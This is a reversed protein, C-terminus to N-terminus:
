VITTITKLNLESRHILGAAFVRWPRPGLMTLNRLVRTAASALEFGKKSLLKQYRSFSWKSADQNALLVPRGATFERPVCLTSSLATPAV